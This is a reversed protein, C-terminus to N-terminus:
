TNDVGRHGDGDRADDDAGSQQQQLETAICGRLTYHNHVNYLDFWRNQTARDAANFVDNQPNWRDRYERNHRSFWTAPNGEIARPINALINTAPHGDDLQQLQLVETIRHAQPGEDEVPLDYMASDDREDCAIRYEVMM